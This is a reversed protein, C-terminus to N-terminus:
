ENEELHCVTFFIQTIMLTPYPRGAGFIRARKRVRARSGWTYIM